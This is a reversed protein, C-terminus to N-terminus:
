EYIHDVDRSFVINKPFVLEKISEYLPKTIKTL